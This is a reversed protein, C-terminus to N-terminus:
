VFVVLLLLSSAVTVGDVGNLERRAPRRRVVTPASRRAATGTAATPTVATATGGADADVTEGAAVVVVDPVADFTVASERAAYTTTAPSVRLPIASRNPVSTAV